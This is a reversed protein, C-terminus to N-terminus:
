DGICTPILFLSMFYHNKGNFSASLKWGLYLTPMTVRWGRRRESTRMTRNRGAAGARRTAFSRVLYEAFVGGGPPMKRDTRAGAGEPRGRYKSLAGGGTCLYTCTHMHTWTYLYTCTPPVRLGRQVVPHGSLRVTTPVRGCIRQRGDAPPGARPVRALGRPGM